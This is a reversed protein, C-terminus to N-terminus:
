PGLSLGAGIILELVGQTCFLRIIYLLKCIQYENEKNTNIHKKTKVSSCMVHSIPM